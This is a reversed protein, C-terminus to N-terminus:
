IRGFDEFVKFILINKLQRSFFRPWYYGRAKKMFFDMYKEDSIEDIQRPNKLIQRTM